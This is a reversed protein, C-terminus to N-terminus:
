VTTPAPTPAHESAPADDSGQGGTEADAETGAEMDTETDAGARAGVEAEAEDAGDDTEHPHLKEIKLGVKGDVEAASIRFDGDSTRMVAQAGHDPTDATGVHVVDWDEDDEAAEPRQGTATPGIPLMSATPLADDDM